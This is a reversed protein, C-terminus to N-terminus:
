DEICEKLIIEDSNTEAKRAVTMACDVSLEGRVVTVSAALSMKGAAEEVVKKGVIVFVLEGTVVIVSALPAIRPARPTDVLTPVLTPVLGTVDAIAEVNVEAAPLVVVMGETM